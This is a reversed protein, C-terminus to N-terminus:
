DEILIDAETDPHQREHARTNFCVLLNPGHGINKFAHSVGPPFTFRVSDGEAVVSETSKGGERIRVLAPGYVVVTEIGFRHRHNGRVAGPETVVVHVN